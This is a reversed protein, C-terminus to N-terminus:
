EELIERLTKVQSEKLKAYKGDRLALTMWGDVMNDDYDRELFDLIKKVESLLWGDVAMWRVIQEISHGYIPKDRLNMDKEKLNDLDLNCLSESNSTIITNPSIKRSAFVEVANLADRISNYYKCYNGVGKQLEVAQWYKGDFYCAAFEKKKSGPESLMSVRYKKDTTMWQWTERIGLKDRKPDVEWCFDIVPPDM